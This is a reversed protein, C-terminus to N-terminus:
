GVSKRDQFPKYVAFADLIRPSSAFEAHLRYEWEPAVNGSVIFRARRVEAYDNKGSEQLSQFRIQTFANIHYLNNSPLSLTDDKKGQAKLSSAYISKLSDGEEKLIIGKDIM